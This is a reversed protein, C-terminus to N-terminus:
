DPPEGLVTFQPVSLKAGSFGDLAEMQDIARLLDVYSILNGYGSKRVFPRIRKQFTQYSQNFGFRRAFRFATEGKLLAGGAILISESNWKDNFNSVIDAASSSQGSRDTLRFSIAPNRLGRQTIELNYGLSMSIGEMLKAIKGKELMYFHSISYGELWFEQLGDRYWGPQDDDELEIGIERLVQRDEGEDARLFRDIATPDIRIRGSRSQANIGRSRAGKSTFVVAAASLTANTEDGAEQLQKALLHAVLKSFLERKREAERSDAELFKWFKDLKSDANLKRAHEIKIWRERVRARVLVGVPSELSRPIVRVGVNEDVIRGQVSITFDDGYGVQITDDSLIRYPIVERSLSLDGNNKASLSSQLEASANGGPMGLTNAQASVKAAATHSVGFSKNRSEQGTWAESQNVGTGFLTFSCNLGNLKLEAKQISLKFEILDEGSEITVYEAGFSASLLVDFYDAPNNSGTRISVSSIHPDLPAPVAIDHVIELEKESWDDQM